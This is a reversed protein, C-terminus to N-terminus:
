TAIALVGHVILEIPSSQSHPGIKALPIVV